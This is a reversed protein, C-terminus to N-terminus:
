VVRNGIKDRTCAEDDLAAVAGVAYGSWGARHAHRPVGRVDDGDGSVEHVTAAEADTVLGVAEHGRQDVPATLSVEVDRVVSGGEIGDLVDVAHHDFQRGK